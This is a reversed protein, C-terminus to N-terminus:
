NAPLSEIYQRILHLGEEDIITTGTKPMHYEGMTAMRSLMNLKNFQIGTQGYAADYDLNLTRSGAIGSPRHCHACNMALYARARKDIPLSPDFYDAIVSFNSVKCNNLLSKHQLYVLQNQTKHDRM